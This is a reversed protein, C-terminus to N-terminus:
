PLCSVKRLNAVTQERGCGARMQQHLHLTLRHIVEMPALDLDDRTLERSATQEIYTVEYSIHRKSACALSRSLRVVPVWMPWSEGAVQGSICVARELQAQAPAEAELPM